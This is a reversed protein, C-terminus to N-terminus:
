KSTFVGVTYSTHTGVRLSVYAGGNGADQACAMGVLGALIGLLLFVKFKNMGAGLKFKKM